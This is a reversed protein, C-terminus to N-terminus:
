TKKPWSGNYNIMGVEINVPEGNKVATEMNDSYTRVSKVWAWAAKLAAEETKETNNLNSTTKKDVLEVARSIMNSQKWDPMEANIVQGAKAKIQNIQETKEHEGVNYNNIVAQAAAKQETTAEPKFWIEWESKPTNADASLGDIPCVVAIKNHLDSTLFM